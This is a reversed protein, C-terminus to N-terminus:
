SEDSEFKDSKQKSGHSSGFWFQMITPVERTMVGILVLTVDKIHDPIDAAGTVFLILVKFYFYLFVASLMVLPLLKFKYFGMKEFIRDM